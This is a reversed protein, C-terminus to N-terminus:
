KYAGKWQNFYDLEKQSKFMWCKGELLPVMCFWMDPYRAQFQEPKLKKQVIITFPYLPLRKEYETRNEILREKTLPTMNM